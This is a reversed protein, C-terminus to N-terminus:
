QASPVFWNVPLVRTVKTPKGDPGIAPEFKGRKMVLRCTQTDLASDGSPGVVRCAEVNGQTGITYAIIVEGSIKKRLSSDPYDSSHFMRLLDGVPQRLLSNSIKPDAGWATLQEDICQLLADVAKSSGAVEVDALQRVGSSARIRKSGKFHDLANLPLRPLFLTFHDKGDLKIANAREGLRRMSTPEFTLDVKDDPELPNKKWEPNIIFMDFGLVGPLMRLGFTVPQLGTERMITCRSDGQNLVWVPKKSPAAGAATPQGLTPGSLMALAAAWCYLRLAM